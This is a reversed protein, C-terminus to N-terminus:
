ADLDRRHTRRQLLWVATGTLLGTVIAGITVAIVSSGNALGFTVVVAVAIPVMLWNGDTRKVTSV